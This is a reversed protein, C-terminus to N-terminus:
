SAGNVTKTTALSATLYTKIGTSQTVGDWTKVTTPGAAAHTIVMVPDNTTGTQESFYIQNYDNTSPASNDVDAAFSVVLQTKGSASASAPNTQGSKAIWGIGTANLTFTQYGTESGVPRTLRAAGVSGLYGRQDYDATTLSNWTAQTSQLLCFQNSATGSNDGVLSFAMTAASINDGSPVGSTDFMFFPIYFNYPVGEDGVSAYASAVGTQTSDGDAASRATTFNSNSKRITGDGADSYVTTTTNGVTGLVINEGGKGITRVTHLIAQRLAEAADKRHNPTALSIVQGGPRTFLRNAHTGDPVMTPPNVIRIRETEITGDPGFGVPEGNLWARVFVTIGNPFPESRRVDIRYDGARFEGDRHAALVEKARDSM